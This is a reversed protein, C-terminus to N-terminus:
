NVVSGNSISRRRNNEMLVYSVSITNGDIQGGDMSIIAQECDRPDEYEVYAFGKSLNVAPDIKLEASKLKGFTGFIEM